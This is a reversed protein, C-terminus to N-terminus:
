SGFGVERIRVDDHQGGASDFTFFIGNWIVHVAWHLDRAVSAPLVVMKRRWSADTGLFPARLGDKSRFVSTKYYDQPRDSNTVTYLLADCVLTNVAVDSHALRLWKRLKALLGSMMDSSYWTTPTLWDLWKESHQICLQQEHRVLAENTDELTEKSDEEQYWVATALEQESVPNDYQELVEIAKDITQNDRGRVLDRFYSRIAGESLVSVVTARDSSLPSDPRRAPELVPEAATILM